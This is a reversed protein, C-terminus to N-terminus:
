FADMLSRKAMNAFRMWTLAKKASIVFDSRSSRTKSFNRRLVSRHPRMKTNEVWESLYHIFYCM